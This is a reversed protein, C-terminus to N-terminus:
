AVRSTHIQEPAGYIPIHKDNNAHLVKSRTLMVAEDTRMLVEGDITGDMMGDMWQDTLGDCGVMMRDIARCGILEGVMALASTIVMMWGSKSM